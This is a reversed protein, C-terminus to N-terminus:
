PINTSMGRRRAHRAPEGREPHDGDHLGGQRSQQVVGGRELLYTSAREERRAGRVRAGADSRAVGRSREIRCRDFEPAIGARVETEREGELREAALLRRQLNGELARARDDGGAVRRVGGVLVIVHQRMVLQSVDPPRDRRADGLLVREARPGAGPQVGDGGGLAFPAFFAACFALFPSSSGLLEM